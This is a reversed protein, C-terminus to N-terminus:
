GLAALIAQKFGLEIEDRVEAISSGLHSRAQIVSGPPHTSRAIAENKATSFDLAKAKVAIVDHAATKGGFEQISKYRVGADAISVFVDSGDNEISSLISAALVGSRSHILTTSLKQQIRAHLAGRLLEAKGFLSDQVTQADYEVNIM